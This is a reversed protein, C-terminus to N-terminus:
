GSQLFRGGTPLFPMLLRETTAWLRRQALMDDGPQVPNLRQAERSFYAGTTGAFAEAVALRSIIGAGREPAGVRLIRLVRELTAAFPLERGLGTVNFGPDVSNAVVGTSALNRALEASFMIAMLKTKGYM